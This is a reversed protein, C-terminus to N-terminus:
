NKAGKEDILQLIESAFVEEPSLEKQTLGQEQVYKFFAGLTKPNNRVGYSWYNKKMLELTEDRYPEGWPLPLSNGELAQTKAESFAIFIAEPLWPNAEVLEKRVALVTMVPFIRTDHFYNQEATKSDPFYPKVAETSSPITPDWSVSGAVFTSSSEVIGRAWVRVSAGSVNVALSGDSKAVIHRHPFARWLYVPVLVWDHTEESSFRKLFAAFDVEVIDGASGQEIKQEIQSLTATAYSIRCEPIEIAGNVISRTHPYDQTMISLPIPDAGWCYLATSVCFLACYINKKFKM